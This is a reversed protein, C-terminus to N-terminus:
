RPKTASLDKWAVRLALALSPQAAGYGPDVGDCALRLLKDDVSGPRVPRPQNEVLGAALVDGRPQYLITFLRAHVGAKCDYDVLGVTYNGPRAGASLPRQFVEVVPATAINGARTVGAVDMFVDARGGLGADVPGAV